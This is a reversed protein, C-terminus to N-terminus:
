DKEDIREVRASVRGKALRIGLLEVPRTESAQRLLTGDPRTVIAYGRGLVAVPSLTELKATLHDLRRQAIAIRTLMGSGLRADLRLRRRECSQVHLLPSASRLSEGLLRSHHRRELLRSDMARLLRQQLDDLRQGLVATPVAERLLRRTLATHQERALGVVSQVNNWARRRLHRIATLVDRVNPVATEAAHTPTAARVDAAWDCLTVDVEHGIGSIVPVPCHAVAEVVREDNWAWLDEPSGGGRGVIIVDPHAHEVLLHIAQAIATPATDGQVLTPSIVVHQGPRRALIIRLMDHLAAGALSTVIGITGPLFPLTRKRERDFYGKAALQKQLQLFAAYLSGLGVPEFYDAVLQYESRPGYASIKGRVLVEHGEEPVYRLFRRTHRYLVCRLSAKDDKLNFYVHGSAPTNLGSIEGRVFADPFSLELREKIASAIESVRWVQRGSESM